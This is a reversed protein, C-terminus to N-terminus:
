SSTPRAGALRLAAVVYRDALEHPKEARGANYWESTRSCMDLIMVAVRTAGNRGDILEFSGDAQGTRLLASLRERLQRRRKVTAEYQAEPLHLYERRIVQALEPHELHGMVYAHVFAKTRSAPDDAVGDLARDLRHELATHGHVVLVDLLDDKGAFHKYLAGPSLGCAKTIDRVSTAAAGQRYFLAAATALMRRAAWTLHVLDPADVFMREFM